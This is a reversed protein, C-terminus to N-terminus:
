QSCVPPAYARDYAMRLDALYSHLPESDKHSRSNLDRKYKLLALGGEYRQKLAKSLEGFSKKVTESQQHFFAKADDNLFVALYQGAKRDSWENAAVYMEFDRLFERVDEEVSFKSEPLVVRHSGM